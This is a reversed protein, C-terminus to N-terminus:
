SSNYENNTFYYYEKLEEKNPTYRNVADFMAFNNDFLEEWFDQIGVYMWCKINHFKLDPMLRSGQRSRFPLTVWVMRRVFKVGNKRDTDLDILKNTPVLRLEGRIPLEPISFPSRDLPIPYSDAMLSRKILAFKDKTFVTGLEMAEGGFFEHDDHGSQMRDYVFLLHYPRQHLVASDPSHPSFGKLYAWEDRTPGVEKKKFPWM